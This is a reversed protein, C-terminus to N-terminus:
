GSFGEVAAAITENQGSGCNKVSVQLKGAKDVLVERRVFLFFSRALFRSTLGGRCSRETPPLGRVEAKKSNFFFSHAGFGMVPPPGSLLRFGDTKDWGASSNGWCSFFPIGRTPPGPGECAKAGRAWTAAPTAHGATHASAGVQCPAFPVRGATPNSAHKPQVKRAPDAEEATLNRPATQKWQEWKKYVARVQYVLANRKSSLFSVRIFLNDLVLL